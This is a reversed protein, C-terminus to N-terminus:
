NGLMDQATNYNKYCQNCMNTKRISSANSSTNDFTRGCVQCKVQHEENVANPNYPTYAWACIIVIFGCIVAAIALYITPVPLKYFFKLDSFLMGWVTIGGFAVLVIGILIGVNM